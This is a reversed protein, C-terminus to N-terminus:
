VNWGCPDEFLASGWAVFRMVEGTEPDIEWFPTSKCTVTLESETVGDGLEFRGTSMVGLDGSRRYLEGSIAWFPISGETGPDLLDAGMVRSAVGAEDAWVYVPCGIISPDASYRNSDCGSIEAAHEGLWSVVSGDDLEITNQRGSHLIEPDDAAVIVGFVNAPPQMSQASESPETVGCAALVM